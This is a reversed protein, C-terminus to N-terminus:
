KAKRKLGSRELFAVDGRECHEALRLCAAALDLAECVIGARNNAHIDDILEKSEEAIVGLAEHTSAFTGYRSQATTMRAILGALLVDPYPLRTMSDEM